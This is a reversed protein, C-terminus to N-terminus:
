QLEAADLAQQLFDRIDEVEARSISHEIGPYERSTLTTYREAWRATMAMAEQSIVPDASDRGWFLLPRVRELETDTPLEEPAVFGSCNVGALFAEPHLRLLSTVMVGGQSFGLLAIQRPAAGLTERLEAIWRWVSRAALVANHEAQQPTVGQPQLSLPFWSYGDHPPYAPLPARPSVCVFPTPLLPALQILDGEHSGLGHMLILLPQGATLAALAHPQSAPQGAVAWQMHAPNLSLDSM